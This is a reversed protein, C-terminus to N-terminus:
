PEQWRLVAAVLGKDGDAALRYITELESWPVEHTILQGLPLRGSQMLGLLFAMNKRCHQAVDGDGWPGPGAALGASVLTPQKTYFPESALPNFDPLPEGRGPFGLVAIRGFARVIDLSTRWATWSNVTSIVIDALRGNTYKALRNCLQTDSAEFVSMAGLDLARQNRSRSNGIAIINGADMARSLAVTALGVPGLGQIAVSEGARLGARQLGTLGIHAIYALSAERSNLDPPIVALVESEKCVFFSQHSQHTLIRMGPSVGDVGTGVHLVRSANCYGVLRPYAPGARLAPLGVYAAKETGISIASYETVAVIEDPAPAGQALVMPEFRLVRPALLRARQGALAAPWSSNETTVVM